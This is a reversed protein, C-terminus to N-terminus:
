VGTVRLGARTKYRRNVAIIVATMGEIWRALRLPGADIGRLGAISDALAMVLRKADRDDGVVLVDTEDPEDSELLVKASIHHFAAVVRAGPLLAAAQEAASGEPVDVPRPGREDRELPNVCDVVVKGALESALEALLAGHGPWPVAVIVVDADRAVDSNSGGRVEIGDRERLEAAAQEARAADRSGVAVLHGAMALRRALGRGQEGTGGLVAVAQRDGPPQAPATSM